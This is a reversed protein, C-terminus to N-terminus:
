KKQVKVLSKTPGGGGRFPIKGEMHVKKKQLCGKAEGATLLLNLCQCYYM